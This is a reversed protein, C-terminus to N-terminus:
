ELNIQYKKTVQFSFFHFNLRSNQIVMFNRFLVPCFVIAIGSSSICLINKQLFLLIEHEKHAMCLIANFPGYFIHDEYNINENKTLMIEWEIWSYMENQFCKKAEKKLGDNEHDFTTSGSKYRTRSCNIHYLTARDSPTSMLCLNQVLVYPVNLAFIFDNM